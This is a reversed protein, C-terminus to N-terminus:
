NESIDLQVIEVDRRREISPIWDNNERTDHTM